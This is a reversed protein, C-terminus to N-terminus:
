CPYTLLAARWQQGTSLTGDATHTGVTSVAKYEPSITKRGSGTGGSVAGVTAFGPGPMFTPTSNHAVVGLILECPQTTTVSGSTPNPNNGSNAAVQDVAGNVNAIANVTIVSLGSFGPYTATVTDGTTLGTTATTSCVFLRGAGTNKDAAVTYANGRSDSCGVPGAFTGTAVAITVTDGAAVSTAGVTADISSNPNVSRSNTAVNYALPPTQAPTYIETTNTPGAENYGAAVLIRGDPLQVIDTPNHGINLSADVTWGGTAPDYIEAPHVSTGTADDGGVVFVRGDPLLLANSARAYNTSGTQTWVGTAPDYIESESLAPGWQNGSIMLVRGDQLKVLQSTYRAVLLDGTRTWQGTAPDFLEAFTSNVPSGFGGAAGIKLVRGDDLLVSSGGDGDEVPVELAGVETWQGTAPDYIESTTTHGPHTGGGAILVRGDLLKVMSAMSRAHNMSGTLTWEGTAPDYLEATNYVGGGGPEGGAMLVKGNNLLQLSYQGKVNHYSGTAQWQGTAPDYIQTRTSYGYSATAGGVGLIRGDLLKVLRVYGGPAQLPAAYSWAGTAWATGSVAPAFPLVLAVVFVLLAKHLRLTRTGATEPQWRM